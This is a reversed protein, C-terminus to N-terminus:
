EWGLAVRLTQPHSKYSCNLIRGQEWVPSVGSGPAVRVARSLGGGGAFAM